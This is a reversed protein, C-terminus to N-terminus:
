AAILENARKQIREIVRGVLQRTYPKGTRHNIHEKAVESQWGYDGEVYADIVAAEFDSLELKSIIERDDLDILSDTNKSIPHQESEEKNASSIRKKPILMSKLNHIETKDLGMEIVCEDFQKESSLEMYRTYIKFDENTWVSLPNDESLSRKLTSRIVHGAYTIFEIDDRTYGNVAKMLGLCANGYANNTDIKAWRFALQHAYNYFNSIVEEQVELIAFIEKVDSAPIFCNQFEIDKIKGNTAKYLGSRFDSMSIRGHVTDKSYRELTLNSNRVIKLLDELRSKKSM